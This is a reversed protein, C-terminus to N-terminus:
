QKVLSYTGANLDFTVLYTGAEAITIDSGGKALVGESGGYNTGWDHNLRFKLHAATLPVTVSWTQTGNDFTMDTDADWGGPTGDGIISWLTPTFAITNANLDVTVQYSGAAPAAINGGSTSITGEGSSGYAVDWDKEPTVKFDLNGATFNIVGTYIGNSTPSKLSDATKPEWGQYAGPLYIYSVLPYPNVTLTLVNSYVPAVATSIESKIRAEITTDAGTTLNMSLLVANFDVGTYSKSLLGAPLAIEKANAFDNGQVDLQLTYTIAANYGFDTAAWDFTVVTDEAQDRTLTLTTTTSSLTNSTGGNTTAMDEDKKCASLVVVSLGCFLLLNSLINKM